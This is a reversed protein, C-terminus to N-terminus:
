YKLKVKKKGLWNNPSLDGTNEIILNGHQEVM